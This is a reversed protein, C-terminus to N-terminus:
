YYGFRQLSKEDDRWNPRVKVTLELHVKSQLFTEIEQRAEQGLKKIASGAKGLLIAKQSERLVFIV